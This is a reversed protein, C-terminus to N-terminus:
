SLESTVDNITVFIDGDGYRFWMEVSDNTKKFTFDDGSVEPIEDLNEPLEDIETNIAEVAITNTHPYTEVLHNSIHAFASELDNSFNYYTKMGDFTTVLITLYKIDVGKTDQVGFQM